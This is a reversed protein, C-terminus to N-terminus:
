TNDGSGRELTVRKDLLLSYILVQNGDKYFARRGRRTGNASLSTAVYLGDPLKGARRLFVTSMGGERNSGLGVMDVLEGCREIAITRTM